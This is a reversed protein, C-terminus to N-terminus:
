QGREGEGVDFLADEFAAVLRDEIEGVNDETERRTDAVLLDLETLTLNAFRPHRHLCRVIQDFLKGLEFPEWEFARWLAEVAFETTIDTMTM